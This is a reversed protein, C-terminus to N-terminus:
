VTQKRWSCGPVSLVEHIVKTNLKVSKIQCRGSGLAASPFQMTLLLLAPGSNLNAVMPGSDLRGRAAGPSGCVDQDGCAAKRPPGLDPCDTGECLQLNRLTGRLPPTRPLTLRCLAWPEAAPLVCARPFTWCLDSEALLVGAWESVQLSPTQERGRCPPCGPYPEPRPRPISPSPWDATAMLGLARSAQPERLSPTLANRISAAQPPTDM